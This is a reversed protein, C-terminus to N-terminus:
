NMMISFTGGSMSSLRSANQIASNRLLSCPTPYLRLEPPLLFLTMLGRTLFFIDAEKVPLGHESAVRILIDADLLPLGFLLACQALMLAIISRGSLGLIPCFRPWSVLARIAAACRPLFNDGSCLARMERAKRPLGHVSALRM